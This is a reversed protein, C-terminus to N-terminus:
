ESEDMADLVNEVSGVPVVSGCDQSDMEQRLIM